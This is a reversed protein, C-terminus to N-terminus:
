ELFLDETRLLLWRARKQSVLNALRLGPDRDPDVALAKKLMEEFEPRNQAGISVSEAFAVFPAARNGSSLAVAREMHVRARERSGGASPPRGGEYSVFFDHIAGQGFGEDLALAKRMLAEVLSLDATLESDEKSLSIAAGWAAGTWYLLPVDRASFESLLAASETRLRESFRPHRVSIGRLGYGLARRYLKKARTRLETARALDKQEVTDAESQVFAYAYQTFGSTASLLLGEHEPSEMLLSEMTKLGFPLAAAVLEPDDDTAYSGGAGAFANGAVNVATRRISCAPLLGALLALALTRRYATM